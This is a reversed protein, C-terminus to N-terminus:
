NSPYLSISPNPPFLSEVTSLHPTVFAYLYGKTCDGILYLFLLRRQSHQIFLIRAEYVDGM